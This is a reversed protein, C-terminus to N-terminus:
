PPTSRPHALPPCGRRADVAPLSVARRLWRASPHLCSCVKSHRRRCDPALLRPRVCGQVAGAFGGGFVAVVSRPGGYLVCIPKDQFSAPRAGDRGRPEAPAGHLHQLWPARAGHERLSGNGVFPRGMFRGCGDMFSSSSKAANNIAANAIPRMV